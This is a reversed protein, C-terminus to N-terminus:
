KPQNQACSLRDSGCTNIAPDSINASLFSRRWRNPAGGAEFRRGVITFAMARAWGQYRASRLCRDPRLSIKSRQWLCAPRSSRNMSYSSSSVSRTRRPWIFISGKHIHDLPSTTSNSLCRRPSRKSILLPRHDAPSRQGAAFLSLPM